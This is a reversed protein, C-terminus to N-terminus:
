TRSLAGILDTWTLLGVVHGDEVALIRRADTAVAYAAAKQISIGADLCLTEFSTREAGPDGRLAPHVPARMITRIPEDLPRCMVERLVDSTSLVGVVHQDDDVVVLRHVHAAVMRWAAEGVDEDPRAIVVPATMLQAATPTPTEPANLLDTSSVIGVLTGEADVVPVASVKRSSLVQEIESALAGERVTAVPSSMWSRIAALPSPPSSCPGGEPLREADLNM